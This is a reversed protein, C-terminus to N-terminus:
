GPIGDGFQDWSGPAPLSNPDAQLRKMLDEARTAAATGPWREQVGRLLEKEAEVGRLRRAATGAAIVADVAHVSQMMEKSAAFHEFEAEVAEDDGVRSLASMYRARLAADQRSAPFQDFVYRIAELGRTAGDAEMTYHVWARSTYLRVEVSAERAVLWAQWAFDRAGCTDGGASRWTAAKVLWEAKRDPTRSLAARLQAMDSAPGAGLEGSAAKYLTVVVMGVAIVAILALILGCVRLAARVRSSVAQSPDIRTM